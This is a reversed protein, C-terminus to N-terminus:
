SLACCGGGEPNCAAVAEPPFLSPDRFFAQLRAVEGELGAENAEQLLELATLLYNRSLLFAIAQPPLPAATLPLPSPAAAPPPRCSGRPHQRVVRGGREWRSPPRRCM